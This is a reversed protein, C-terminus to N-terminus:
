QAYFGYKGLAAFSAQLPSLIGHLAELIKRQSQLVTGGMKQSARARLGLSKRRDPVPLLLWCYATTEGDRSSVISLRSFSKCLVPLGNNERGHFIEGIGNKERKQTWVWMEEKVWEKTWENIQESEKKGEKETGEM